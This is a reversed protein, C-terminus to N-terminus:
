AGEIDGGDGDGDGDEPPEDLRFLTRATDLYASRDSRERLTAIPAHLLQKVLARTLADALEEVHARDSESLKVRRMTKALEARRMEEARDTIASITPVIELQGWWETFRATEHDIIAQVAAVEGTRAETNRAAIQQLDDLDYYAVGPVARITAHFDRPVGIDIILLPQGDRHAAAAQVAAHEFLAGPSGSATIVVDVDRLAEAAEGFPIAQGGLAAALAEARAFTRNAVSIREAGYAALAEAALRGAEGAGIVLVSARALDPFLDRAQQAAISSVSVSREGIGTENRARRGTRIATHFLRSLMATDAGAAVTASFASRVQGLVETEGLVMSDIGSAVAYLHRVADPGYAVQFHREMVEPDANLEGALFGLVAEPEHTGPLYLELRNCTNIITAAGFTGGARQLVGPLVDPDIALRERIDLPATLHSMGAFTIM